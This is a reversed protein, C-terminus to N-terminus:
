VLLLLPYRILNSMDMTTTDHACRVQDSSFLCVTQLSTSAAYTWPHMEDGNRELAGLCAYMSMSFLSGDMWGYGLLKEQSGQGTGDMWKWGMANVYGSVNEVYGNRRWVVQFQVHHLVWSPSSTFTAWAWLSLLSSVHCRKQHRQITDVYVFVKTYM